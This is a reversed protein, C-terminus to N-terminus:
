KISRYLYKKLTFWHNFMCMVQLTIWSNKIRKNNYKIGPLFSFKSIPVYYFSRSLYDLTLISAIHDPFMNSTHASYCFMISMHQLIVKFRYIHTDRAPELNHHILNERTPFGCVHLYFFLNLQTRRPELDHQIPNGRLPFRCLM